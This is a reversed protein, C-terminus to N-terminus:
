NAGSNRIILRYICYFFYLVLLVGACIIISNNINSLDDHYDGQVVEAPVDVTVTAYSAIDFLGNETIDFNGTPLSGFTESLTITVSGSYNGNKGGTLYVHDPSSLFLLSSTCSPVPINASSFGSVFFSSANSCNGPNSPESLFYSFSSCSDESLSCLDFFSPISSIDFTYSVDSVAFSIDSFFFVSLVAVFVLSFIGFGIRRYNKTWSM